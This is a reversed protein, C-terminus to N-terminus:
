SEVGFKDCTYVELGSYRVLTLGTTNGYKGVIFLADGDMDEADPLVVLQCPAIDHM